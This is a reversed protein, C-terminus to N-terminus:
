WARGLAGSVECGGSAKEPVQIIAPHDKPRSGYGETLSPIIWSALPYVMLCPRHPLTTPSRFNESTPLVGTRHCLFVVDRHYTTHPSIPNLCPPVIQPPTTRCKSGYRNSAKLSSASNKKLKDGFQTGTHVWKSYLDGSAFAFVFIKTFQSTEREPM